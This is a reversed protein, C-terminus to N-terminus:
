DVNGGNATKVLIRDGQRLSLGSIFRHYEVEGNSRFIKMSNRGGPLSQNLSWVPVIARTYGVSLSANNRMEYLVSIGHGGKFRVEQDPREALSKHIVNVGYRAECIEVPTNFTDGHSTSFMADVGNRDSTAGWGGMQPEVM